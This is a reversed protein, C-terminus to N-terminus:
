LINFIKEECYQIKHLIHNINEDCVINESNGYFKDLNINLKQSFHTEFNKYANTFDQFDIEFYYPTLNSGHIVILFDNKNKMCNFFVPNGSLFGFDLQRHGWWETVALYDDTYDIMKEESYYDSLKNL